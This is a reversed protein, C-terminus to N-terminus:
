RCSKRPQTSAVAVNGQVSGSGAKCLGVSATGLTQGTGLKALKDASVWEVKLCPSPTPGPLTFPCGVVVFQDSSIAMPAGMVRVRTNSTAIRVQGGHPCALSSVTTLAPM